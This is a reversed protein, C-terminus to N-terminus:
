QQVGVAGGGIGPKANPSMNTEVVVQIGLENAFQGYYATARQAAGAVLLDKSYARHMIFNLLVNSYIEPFDIDIDYSDLDLADGTPMVKEPSASIVLEIHGSGDNGPYVYFSRPNAEDFIFHKVQQGYPVSYSDHWDPKLANIQNADVVTLTKRPLRDSHEGRVNRVPRLVSNYEPSLQQLTGEALQMTVTKSTATPKQLVIALLGDNLWKVLESADWRIFEEDLLLISVRELLQKVNIM